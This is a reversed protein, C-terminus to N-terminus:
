GNAPKAASGVLRQVAFGAPPHGSILQLGPGRAGPSPGAPGACVTPGTWVARVDHSPTSLELRKCRGLPCYIVAVMGPRESAEFSSLPRTSIAHSGMVRM